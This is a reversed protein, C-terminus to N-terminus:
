HYGAMGALLSVGILLSAAAFNRALRKAFATRSLLPQSKSEYGFLHHRSL